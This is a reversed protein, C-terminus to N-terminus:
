FFLLFTWFVFFLFIFLSFFMSNSCWTSDQSYDECNITIDICNDCSINAINRCADISDCEIKCLCNESCIINAGFGSHTGVFNFTVNRNPVSILVANYGSLYGDLNVSNVAYIIADSCSREGDCRLKNSGTTSTLNNNYDYNYNPDLEITSGHCSLEGCCYITADNTTSSIALKDVFACSLLGGCNIDNELSEIHYSNYCSYSGSCSITTSSNTTKISIASRCSEHGSCKINDSDKISEFACELEETCERSTVFHVFWYILFFILKKM